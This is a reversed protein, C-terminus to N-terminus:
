KKGRKRGGPKPQDLADAFERLQRALEALEEPNWREGKPQKAM